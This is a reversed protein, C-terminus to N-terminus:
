GRLGIRVTIRRIEPTIWLSLDIILEGLTRMAATYVLDYDWKELGKGRFLKLGEDLAQKLGEINTPSLGLRIFPQSAARVQDIADHMVRMTTIRVFDSRVYTSINHAGTMADYVVYQGLKRCSTIFRNTALDDAQRTSLNRIVEAGSIPVNRPAEESKTAALLGAFGAAGSNNYYGLSPYDRNAATNRFREWGAYVMIYAGIDIPNSHADQMVTAADAPPAGTPMAEDTTAWFAFTDPVDDSGADTVGDYETFAAGQVGSTDYANLADVWTAMEALTPRGTTETASTPATAGIVGLRATFERTGRFCFNALQYGFSTGATLNPSDIYAGVPVAIDLEHNLLLTYARALLNYRDGEALTSWRSGSGDSLVFIEINEAGATQAELVAKTIESPTGAALDYDTLVSGREVRVPEELLASTNDTLGIIMVSPAAMPRSLALGRDTIEARTIGLNDHDAM